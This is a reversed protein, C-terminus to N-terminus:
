MVEILPCPFSDLLPIGGILGDKQEDLSFPQARHRTSTYAGADWSNM